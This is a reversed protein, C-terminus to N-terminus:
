KFEAGGATLWWKNRLQEPSPGETCVSTPILVEPRDVREFRSGLAYLYSGM